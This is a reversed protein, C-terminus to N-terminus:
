RQGVKRGVNQARTRSEDLKRGVEDTKTRKRGVTRGTRGDSLKAGSSDQWDNLEVHRSRTQRKQAVPSCYALRDGLMERVIALVTRLLVLSFPFALFHIGCFDGNGGFFELAAM